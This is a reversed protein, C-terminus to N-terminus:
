RTVPGACRVEYVREAVGYRWSHVYGRVAYRGNPCMRALRCAERMAADWTM